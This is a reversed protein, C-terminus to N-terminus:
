VTRPAATGTSGRSGYSISNKVETVLADLEEDTCTSYLARVPLNNETMRRFLTARSMGLLDAISKVPLGLEILHTLSTASISIRPRGHGTELEVMVSVEEMDRQHQIVNSLNTLAVMVDEPMNIM